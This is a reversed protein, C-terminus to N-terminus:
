EIEEPFPWNDNVAIITECCSTLLFVSGVAQVGGPIEIDFRQDEEYTNCTNQCTPCIHMNDEWKFDPHM